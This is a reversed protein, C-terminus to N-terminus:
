GGGLMRNYREAAQVHVRQAAFAEGGDDRMGLLIEYHPLEQSGDAGADISQIKQCRLTLREQEL